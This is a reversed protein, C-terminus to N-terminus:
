RISRSPAYPVFPNDRGRSTTSAIVESFDQLESVLQANPLNVDRFSVKDQNILKLFTVLNKGLLKQNIAPKTTTDTVSFTTYLYYGGIVVLVLVIGELIMSKKAAFLQQLNM